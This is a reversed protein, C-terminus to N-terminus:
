GTSEYQNNRPQYKKLEKNEDQLKAISNEMALIRRNMEDMMNICREATDKSSIAERYVNLNAVIAGILVQNGSSYIQAILEITEGLSPKDSPTQTTTPERKAPSSITPSPPNQTDKLLMPVNDSFFWNINFGLRALEEFVKGGPTASGNEYTQWGSKTKGVAEAMETQTKGLYERAYKLRSKITM